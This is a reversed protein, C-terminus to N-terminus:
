NLARIYDELNFKYWTYGACVYGVGNYEYVNGWPHITTSIPCNDYDFGEARNEEPSTMKHVVGNCLAEDYKVIRGAIVEENTLVRTKNNIEGM